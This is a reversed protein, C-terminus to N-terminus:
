RCRENSFVMHDASEMEGLTQPISRLKALRTELYARAADGISFGTPLPPVERLYNRFAPTPVEVGVLAGICALAGATEIQEFLNNAAM